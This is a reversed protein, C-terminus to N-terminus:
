SGPVVKRTGRGGRAPKGAAAPEVEKAKGAARHAMYKQTREDLGELGDCTSLPVLENALHDYCLFATAGPREFVAPQVVTPDQGCAALLLFPALLGIPWTLPGHRRGGDSRTAPTM